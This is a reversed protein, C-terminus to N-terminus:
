RIALCLIGIGKTLLGRESLYLYVIVSSPYDQNIDPRGLYKRTEQERQAKGKMDAARRTTILGPSQAWTVKPKM